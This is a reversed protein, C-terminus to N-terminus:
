VLGVASVMRGPNQPERRFSFFLNAQCYTCFGCDHIRTSAVGANVLHRRNGEPLDVTRRGPEAPWEPFLPVFRAAVEAGVEYCCVQISPGIAADVAAPHTGFFKRMTELTRVAIAEVTGRWGAHVAAVARHEPDLLLIPVCDATRVGISQGSVDCVLADGESCRDTLGRADFVRDSHVQRLTIDAHPNAQRTGFGHCQWDFQEWATCRL